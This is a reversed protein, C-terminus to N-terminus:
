FVFDGATIVPKNVLFLAWEAAADGDTSGTMIGTAQVYRVQGAATFAANGIFAAMFIMELDDVGHVFDTIQDRAAGIGLTAASTFEFIDAGAGGTLVDTGAGATLRDNGLGGNVTDNGARGFLADSGAGGTLADNETGGDLVDALAGGTLSDNGAGGFVSGVVRGLLGTYADAGTGLDVTGRIVGDNTIRDAGDGLVVNGLVSGLNRLTDVGTNGLIAESAGFADVRLTGENIITMASLAQTNAICTVVGTMTGRNLINATDVGISLAQEGGTITGINTIRALTPAPNGQDVVFVGAANGEISGANQLTFTGSVGASVVGDSLADSTLHGTSTNQIIADTGSTAIAVNTVAVTGANTVRGTDGTLVLGDFGSVLGTNRIIGDNGSIRAGSSRGFITGDNIIQASNGSADLATLQAQVQGMNAIRASTGTISVGTVGTVITGTNGVFGSSGVVTVGDSTANIQGSNTINAIAGTYLVAASTARLSGANTVVGGSGTVSIANTQGYISGVNLIDFSDGNIRVGVQRASISGANDVTNSSGGMEIGNGLTSTVSGTQGIQVRNNAFSTPTVILDIAGVNATANSVAGDIIVSIQDSTALSGQVGALTNTIRLGAALYFTDNAVLLQTTTSNATPVIYAM